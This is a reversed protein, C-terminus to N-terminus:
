HHWHPGGWGGRYGRWGGHWWVYNRGGWYRYYHPGNYWAGNIWVPGGWSPYGCYGNYAYNYNYCPGPPYYGPGYYGPGYYGPGPIGIGIGVHVGASAPATTAVTTGAAIGATMLAGLALKAIKKMQEMGKNTETPHGDVM